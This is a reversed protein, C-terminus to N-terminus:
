RQGAPWEGVGVFPKLKKGSKVRAIEERLAWIDWLLKNEEEYRRKAKMIMAMVVSSVKPEDDVFKERRPITLRYCPTCMLRKDLPGRLVFAEGCERCQREM